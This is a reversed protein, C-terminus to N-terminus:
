TLIAILFQWLFLPNVWKDHHNEMAVNTLKGSPVPFKTAFGISFGQFVWPCFRALDPACWVALACWPIWPNGRRV